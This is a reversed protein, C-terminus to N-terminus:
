LVVIGGVLAMLVVSMGALEKATAATKRRPSFGKRRM